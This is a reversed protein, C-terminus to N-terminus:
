GQRLAQLKKNRRINCLTSSCGAGFAPSVDAGPQSKIEDYIACQNDETLFRCAGKTGDWKGFPCVGITCCYGCQVCERGV